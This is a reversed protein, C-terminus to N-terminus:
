VKWHRRSSRKTWPGTIKAPSEACRTEGKPARPNLLPTCSVSLRAQFSAATSAPCAGRASSVVYPSSRSAAASSFRRLEVREVSKMVGLDRAERVIRSAARDSVASTGKARGSIM